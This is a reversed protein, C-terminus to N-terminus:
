VLVHAPIAGLNPDIRQGRDRTISERAFGFIWAGHSVEVRQQFIAADREHQELHEFGLLQAPERKEGIV